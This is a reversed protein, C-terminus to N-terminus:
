EEYVFHPLNVPYHRFNTAHEAFAEAIVVPLRTWVLLAEYQRRAKLGCAHLAALIAADRTPSQALVPVQLGAGRLAINLRRVAEVDDQTISRFEAPIDGIATKLWSLFREHENLQNKLQEALAIAAVSLISSADGGCLRALVAAHTPACAVSVPSAFVLITDLAGAVEPTPLEGTVALYAVASPSYHRALDSEVDYGHIRPQAGPTVVRATLQDPFLGTELPGPSPWSGSSPTSM